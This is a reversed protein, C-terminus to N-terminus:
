HRDAEPQKSTLQTLNCQLKLTQSSNSYKAGYEQGTKTYLEFGCNLNSLAADPIEQYAISPTCPDM